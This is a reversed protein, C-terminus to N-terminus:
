RRHGVQPGFPAKGFSGPGRWASNRRGGLGPVDPRQPGSGQLLALSVLCMGIMMAPDKLLDEVEKETMSEDVLVPRQDM